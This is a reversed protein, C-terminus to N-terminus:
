GQLGCSKNTVNSLYIFFGFISFTLFDKEIMSIQLLVGDATEETQWHDMSFGELGLCELILNCFTVCRIFNFAELGTPHCLRLLM